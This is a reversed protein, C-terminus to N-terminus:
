YIATDTPSQHKFLNAKALIYNDMDKHWNLHDPAIVLCVALRPSYQLDSLQYSSLELVVWSDATLKSLFDFPSVGINGGLFVEKGDAELMKATMTSTTGKG